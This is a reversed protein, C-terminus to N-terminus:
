RRAPSRTSYRVLLLCGTDSTGTNHVSGAPMRLYDGVQFTYDDFRCSGELVYLEEADAHQHREVRAGPEIRLLLTAYQHAADFFLTRLFVGPSPGPTWTGQLSM